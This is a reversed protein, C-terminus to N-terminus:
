ESVWESGTLKRGGCDRIVWYASYAAAKPGANKPAWCCPMLM